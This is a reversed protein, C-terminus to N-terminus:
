WAEVSSEGHKSIIPTRTPKGLQPKLLIFIIINKKTIVPKRRQSIKSLPKEGNNDYSSQEYFEWLTYNITPIEGNGKGRDLTARIQCLEHM